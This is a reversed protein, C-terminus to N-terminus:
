EPLSADADARLAAVAEAWVNVIPHQMAHDVDAFPFGIAALAKGIDPKIAALPEALERTERSNTGHRVGGRERIFCLIALLEATEIRCLRLREILPAGATSLLANLAAELRMAASAAGAELDALSAQLQALAAVGADQNDQAEVEAARAARLASAPTAQSGASIAQAVRRAQHERASAVAAVAAALKTAADGVLREAREVANRQAELKAEAALNDEIAAALAQRERSRPATAVAKKIPTITMIKV